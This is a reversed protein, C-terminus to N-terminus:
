FNFYYGSWVITVFEVVKLLVNCCSIWREKHVNSMKNVSNLTLETTRLGSFALRSSNFMIVRILRRDRTFSIKRKFYFLEKDSTDIREQRYGRVRAFNGLYDTEARLLWVLGRFHVVHAELVGGVGALKSSGHAHVHFHLTERQVLRVRTRRSQSPPPRSLVRLDHDLLLEGGVVELVHLAPRRRGGVV